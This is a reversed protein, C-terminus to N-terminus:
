ENLIVRLVVFIRQSPCGIPVLIDLALARRRAGGVGEGQMKDTGSRLFLPPATWVGGDGTARCHAGGAGMRALWRRRKRESSSLSELSRRGETARRRAGGAGM